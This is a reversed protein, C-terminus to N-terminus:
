ILKTLCQHIQSPVEKVETSLRKTEAMNSEHEKQAVDLNRKFRLLQENFWDDRIADVLEFNNNQLDGDHM